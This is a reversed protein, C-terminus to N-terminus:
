RPPAPAPPPIPQKPIFLMTKVEWVAEDFVVFLGDEYLYAPSGSQEGTATPPGWGQVILPRNFTGPKPHLLVSRVIQPLYGTPTLMGFEVVMRIMGPPAQAEEYVWQASDYGDVKQTTAQTPKGYRRRVADMTTEAPNILGWEAAPASLPCALMIVLVGLVAALVALRSPVM